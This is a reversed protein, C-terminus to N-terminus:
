DSSYFIWFLKVVKFNFIYGNNCSHTPSWPPNEWGCFILRAASQRGLKLTSLSLPLRKWMKMCFWDNGCYVNLFCGTTKWEKWTANKWMTPQNDDDFLVWFLEKESFGKIFLLKGNCFIQKWALNNRSYMSWSSYWILKPFCNPISSFKLWDCSVNIFVYTFFVKEVVFYWDPLVKHAWCLLCVNECKWAFDIM